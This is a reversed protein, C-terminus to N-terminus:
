QFCTDIVRKWNVRVYKFILYSVLKTHIFNLNKLGFYEFGDAIFFGSPSFVM